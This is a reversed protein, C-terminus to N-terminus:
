VTVHDLKTIIGNVVFAYIQVFMNKDDFLNEMVIADALVTSSQSDFFHQFM